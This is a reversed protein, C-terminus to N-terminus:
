GHPVEMPTVPNADDLPMSRRADYHQKAGPRMVLYLAGLFIGVFMVVAIEALWAYQSLSLIDSKM